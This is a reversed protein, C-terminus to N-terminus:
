RPAPRSACQRCSTCRTFVRWLKEWRNGHYHRECLLRTCTPCYGGDGPDFTAGCEDCVAGHETRILLPIGLM